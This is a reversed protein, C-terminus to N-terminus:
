RVKLAGGVSLEEATKGTSAYCNGTLTAAGAAAILKIFDRREM